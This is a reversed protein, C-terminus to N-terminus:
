SGSIRWIRRLAQNGCRHAGGDEGPQAAWLNENQAIVYGNWYGCGALRQDVDRRTAHVVGVDVRSDAPVALLDGLGRAAIPKGLRCDIVSRPTSAPKLEGSDLAGIWAAPDNSDTCVDVLCDDPTSREDIAAQAVDVFWHTTFEGAIEAAFSVTTESFIDRHRGTVDVHM